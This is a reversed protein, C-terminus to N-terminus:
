REHKRRYEKMLAEAYIFDAPTDINVLPRDIIVAKSERDLITDSTLL